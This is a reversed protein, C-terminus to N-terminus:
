QHVSFCPQCRHATCGAAKASTARRTEGILYFGSHTGNCILKKHLGENKEALSSAFAARDATALAASVVANRVARESVTVREIAEKMVECTTSKDAVGSAHYSAIAETLRSCANVFAAVDPAGSMNVAFAGRNDLHPAILYM